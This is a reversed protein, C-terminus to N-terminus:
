IPTKRDRSRGVVRSGFWLKELEYFERLEGNMLHIVLFGCDILVWDNELGGKRKKFPEIGNQDLFQYLHRLLGHLHAQSRVTTIIFTDTWSCRERVDLVVTNEGKHDELLQAIEEIKDSNVTDAM